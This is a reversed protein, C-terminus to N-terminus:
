SGMPRMRSLDRGAVVSAAYAVAAQADPARVEQYFADDAGVMIRVPWVPPRGVASSEEATPATPVPCTLLWSSNPKESCSM